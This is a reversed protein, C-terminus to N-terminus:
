IKRLRISGNVSKVYVKFDGNGVTGSVKSGVFGKKIHLDFDTRISGNITAGNVEFASKKHMVVKITGNVTKATLDGMLPKNQYITIIGNVTKANNEKFQGECEIAGNVSNVTVDRYIGELTVHGNVSKAHTVALNEPVKVVFDAKARHNRFRKKYEVDVVLDNGSHDFEVILDDMHEQNKASKVAKIIVESKKHTAIEIYGNVNSIKFTGEPTIKFSKEVKEELEYGMLLISLALLFPILLYKKM